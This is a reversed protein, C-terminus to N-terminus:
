LHCHVESSGFSGSYGVSAAISQVEETPSATRDIRATASGRGPSQLSVPLPFAVPGPAIPMATAGPVAVFNRAPDTVATAVAPAQANATAVLVLAVVAAARM